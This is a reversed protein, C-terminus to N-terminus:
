QCRSPPRGRSASKRRNRFLLKDGKNERQNSCHLM